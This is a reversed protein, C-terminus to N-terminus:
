GPAPSTISSRHLGRRTARRAFGEEMSVLLVLRRLLPLVLLVGLHLNLLSRLLYNAIVPVAAAATTRVVLQVIRRSFVGIPNAAGSGVTFSISSLLLLMQEISRSNGFELSGLSSSAM